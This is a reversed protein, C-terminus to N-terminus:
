RKRKALQMKQQCMWVQQRQGQGQRQPQACAGGPLSALNTVLRAAAETATAKAGATAATAAAQAIAKQHEASAGARHALLSVCLFGSCVGQHVDFRASYLNAVL